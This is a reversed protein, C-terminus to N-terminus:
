WSKLALLRKPPHMPPIAYDRTPSCNTPSKIRSCNVSTMPRCRAAPTSPTSRKRRSDLKLLTAASFPGRTNPAGSRAVTLTAIQQERASLTSDAISAGLNQINQMLKPNRIYAWFPGGHPRGNAKSADIVARQEDNMDDPSLISIRTM